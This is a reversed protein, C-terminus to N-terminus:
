KIRKQCLIYISHYTLSNNFNEQMKLLTEKGLYFRGLSNVGSLKLHRFAELASEFKLRNLEEKLELIEFNKLLNRYEKLSRYPLSLGTLSKIEKLNEEGFSSLLLFGDKKLLTHLNTFIDNKLWQLTANSAILDFKQGEFFAKPICNMDFIEVEFESKYDLIDNRVYDKFIINKQLKQSFEGTGCGFEFVRDFEKLCHIKLLECLSKGMMDQVKAAFKYSDKAKLFNLNAGM